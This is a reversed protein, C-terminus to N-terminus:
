ATSGEALQAEAITKSLGEELPVFAFDPFATRCTTIDFPRYGNHPMPGMRPTEVIPVSRGSLRVVTEAIERFSVTEGTAINLAGASRRYIVRATLEAVDDILVHDRQEEGEGFLV